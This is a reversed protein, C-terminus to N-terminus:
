AQYESHTGFPLCKGSYKDKLLKNENRYVKIISFPSKKSNKGKISILQKREYPHTIKLFFDDFLSLLLLKPWATTFIIIKASKKRSELEHFFLIFLIYM